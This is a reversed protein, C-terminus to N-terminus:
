FSWTGRRLANQAASTMADCEDLIILKFNGGSPHSSSLTRTAAFNKIQDRVVTIGREDSANLELVMAAKGHVGFIDNALSVATSTKGTGPPGYFLLHPLKGNSAFRRVICRQNLLFTVLCSLVFTRTAIINGHSLVDALATPRYKEVWPLGVSSSNLSESTDADIKMMNTTKEKEKGKEAEAFANSIMMFSSVIHQSPFTKKIEKFTIELYSQDCIIDDTERVHSSNYDSEDRRGHAGTSNHDCKGEPQLAQWTSSVSNPCMM